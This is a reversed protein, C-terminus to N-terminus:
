GHGALRVLMAPDVACDRAGLVGPMERVLLSLAVRVLRSEDPTLTLSAGGLKAELQAVRDRLFGLDHRDDRVGLLEGAQLDYGDPTELRKSRARGFSVLSFGDWDPGGIAGLGVREGFVASPDLSGAEARAVVERVGWDILRQLVREVSCGLAEAVEGAGDASVDDIRVQVLRSM